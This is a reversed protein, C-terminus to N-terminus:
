QIVIKTNVTEDKMQVQLIYIGKQLLPLALNIFGSYNDLKEQFVKKGETSFLAVQLVPKDAIMNLRHDTILTPYIKLNSKGKRDLEIVPSYSLSGDQDVTKLRYFLRTNQTFSHRYSYNNGLPLNVANVSGANIYNVADTSCEIEFHSVNQENTTKWQVENYTGFSRASFQVLTIPIVVSNTTVKYLTGNLSLAYLDGNEAEGFGAINGPLGSQLTTTWGGTGNPKILWTNGSIFDACIYYGYMAAFETGRYVYGGTISFGGTSSNHTYDTIPFTYFSEAQCGTTNYPLNGEYCPWGYNIGGSSALPKLNIEERAAQGVDAIWMDQNLRDFSWRWPNRLGMAYIEDRVLPDSVYPNDVPITYYPPTTFNDVNIRLMKGLLSNGNQAPNSQDGTSGGDGTGFYLNGDAGFILKGGNHNTFNPHPITILVVGTTKDAANPNGAQTQFRTIRIDGDTNTYYIFFYRNNIFDPHFAISLLGTEGGSTISDPLSLFDGPLLAGGSFIRVTGGRGVIFLRNTGDGPNVVDLPSSLGSTIVPDYILVPPSQAFCYTSIFLQTTIFSLLLVLLNTKLRYATM